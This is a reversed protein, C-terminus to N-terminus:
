VTGRTQDHMLGHTIECQDPLRYCCRCQKETGNFKGGFVLSTMKLAVCIYDPFFFFALQRGSDASEEQNGNLM